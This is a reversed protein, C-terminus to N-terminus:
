IPVKVTFSTLLEELVAQKYKDTNIFCRVYILTVAVLSNPHALHSFSCIVYTVSHFEVLHQQRGKMVPTTSKLRTGLIRM